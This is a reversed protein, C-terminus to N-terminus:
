PTGFRARPGLWDLRDGQAWQVVLPESGVRTVVGQQSRLQQLLAERESALTDLEYRAAAAQLTQSLYFLGALLLAAIALTGVIATRPRHVVVGLSRLGTRGAARPLARPPPAVITRPRMAPARDPVVRVTPAAPRSDTAPRTPALAARSRPRGGTAQPRASVARARGAAPAIPTAHATRVSPAPREDVGRIATGLAGARLSAGQHLALTLRGRRRALHADLAIHRTAPLVPGHPEGVREPPGM